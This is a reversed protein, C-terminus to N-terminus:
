YEKGYGMSMAINKVLGKMANDFSSKFEEFKKDLDNM